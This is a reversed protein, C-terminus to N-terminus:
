GRIVKWAGFAIFAIVATFACWKLIDWVTYGAEITQTVAVPIEIKVTDAKCKGEIYVKEGALKVYKIELRDKTIRVTDGIAVQEILTDTRVMPVFVKVDQYVTDTTVKAGLLQARKLHWSPGCSTTLWLLIAALIYRM